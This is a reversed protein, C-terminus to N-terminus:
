VVQIFLCYQISAAQVRCGRRVRVLTGGTSRSHSQRRWRRWCLASRRGFTSAAPRPPRGCRTRRDPRDTRQGRSSPAEGMDRCRQRRRLVFVSKSLCLASSISTNIFLLFSPLFYPINLCSSPVRFFPAYFLNADKRETIEKHHWHWWAPKNLDHGTRRRKKKLKCNERRGGRPEEQKIAPQSGLNLGNTIKPGSM